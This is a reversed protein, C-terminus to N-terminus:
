KRGALMRSDGLMMLAARRHSGFAERATDIIRVEQYGMKRLKEAFEEMDGYMRPKMDDNLAFVGGKKLVRLSELLLAQKDAGNINHYVYNSVVADFTEDPFDLKRADGYLFRCRESVGESRANSECMAQSYNYVAGWYDMGTVEAEPWSLAARISLAGSGCGVELLTGKGDFDLHSLLVEHVKEMMGGGGFAYQRRIWNLWGLLILTAAAVVLALVGIPDMGPIFHSIVCLVAMLVILAGVMYFVPASMWNGYNEGHTGLRVPERKRRNTEM